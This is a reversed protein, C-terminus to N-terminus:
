GGFHDYVVQYDPVLLGNNNELGLDLAKFWITFHCSTGMQEFREIWAKAGAPDAAADTANVAFEAIGFPKGNLRAFSTLPSITELPDAALVATRDHPYTDIGMFDTMDNGPWYTMYNLNKNWIPFTQFAVGCAIGHRRIAPALPRYRHIYESATLEPYPEHWLVIWVASAFGRKAIDAGLADCADFTAQTADPVKLSLLVHRGAQLQTLIRADAATTPVPTGQKHYVRVVKAKRGTLQDLQDATLTGYATYGIANVPFAALAAGGVAGEAVAAAPRRELVDIDMAAIPTLAALKLFSRRRM